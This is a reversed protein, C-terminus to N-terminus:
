YISQQISNQYILFLFFGSISEPKKSKHIKKTM